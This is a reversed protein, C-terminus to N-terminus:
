GRRDRRLRVSCLFNCVDINQGGNFVCISEIFEVDRGSVTSNFHVRLGPSPLKGQSQVPAKSGKIQLGNQRCMYSQMMTQKPLCRPWSFLARM